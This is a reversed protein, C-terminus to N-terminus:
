NSRLRKVSEVWVNRGAAEKELVSLSGGKPWAGEATVVIAYKKGRKESEVISQAVKELDYPIEPILIADASGSIGSNM